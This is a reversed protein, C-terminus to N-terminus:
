AARDVVRSADDEHPAGDAEYTLSGAVVAHLYQIWRDVLSRSGELLRANRENAEQLAVAQARLLMGAEMLTQGASPAARAAVESLTITPPDREIALGIATLASSAARTTRTRRATPRTLRGRGRAIWRDTELAAGFELLHEKESVIETLREVDGEILAREEQTSLQLLSGYVEGQEVLASALAATDVDATTM